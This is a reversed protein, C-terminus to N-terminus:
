VVLLTESTQVENLTLYHVKAGVKTRTQVVPSFFVVYLKRKLIANECRFSM